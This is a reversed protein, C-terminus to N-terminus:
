DLKLLKQAEQLKGFFEEGFKRIIPEKLFRFVPVDLEEGCACAPECIEWEHFNMATFKRYERLRVPYLHCSIPKIFETKGDNFAQEIGCKTTGEADFFVFACQAGEVLTTVKEGDTDRAWVGKEEIVKQGKPDAYPKIADLNDTIIEIEEDTLPAGGEGDVCCAGKCASLDCVFKKQFITRSILVDDIQIMPAFTFSARYHFPISLKISM